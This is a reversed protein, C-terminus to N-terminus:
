KETKDVPQLDINQVLIEYECPMFEVFYVVVSPHEQIWKMM